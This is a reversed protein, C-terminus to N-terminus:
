DLKELKHWIGIEAASGFTAAYVPSNAHLSVEPVNMYTVM